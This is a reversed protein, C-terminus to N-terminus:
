SVGIDVATVTISHSHSAEGEWVTEDVAVKDRM